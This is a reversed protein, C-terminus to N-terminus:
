GLWMFPAFLHIVTTLLLCVVIPLWASLLLMLLLQVFACGAGTSIAGEGTKPSRFLIGGLWFLCGAALSSVAAYFLLDPAAVERSGHYMLADALAYIVSLGVFLAGVGLTYGAILM